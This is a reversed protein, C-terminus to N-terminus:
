ALVKLQWGLKQSVIIPQAWYAVVLIEGGIGGMLEDRVSRVTWGQYNPVQQSDLYAIRAFAPSLMDGGLAGQLQCAIAYKSWIYSMTPTTSEPTSNYLASGVIYKVGNFYQQLAVEDVVPKAQGRVTSQISVASKIESVNVRLNYNVDAGVILSDWMGLLKGSSGIQGMVAGLTTAYPTASADDWQKHSAFDGAELVGYYNTAFNTDTQFLAAVEMELDLEILTKLVSICIQRWKEASGYQAIADAKDVDSLEIALARGTLDINATTSTFRIKKPHSTRTVDVQDVRDFFTREAWLRYDTKIAGVPMPPAVQDYIFPYPPNYAWAYRHEHTRFATGTGAFQMIEHDSMDMSIIRGPMNDAMGPIQKSTIQKLEIAM